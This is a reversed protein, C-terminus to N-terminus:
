DSDARNALYTHLYVSETSKVAKGTTQVCVFYCHFQNVATHYYTRTRNVYKVTEQPLLLTIQQYLYM